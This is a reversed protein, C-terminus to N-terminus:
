DRDGEWHTLKVVGTKPNVIVSYERLGVEKGTIVKELSMIYCEETWEFGYGDQREFNKSYPKNTLSWKGKVEAIEFKSRWAKEIHAQLKDLDSSPCFFYCSAEIGQGRFTPEFHTTKCYGIIPQLYKPADTACINEFVSAFGKKTLFGIQSSGKARSPYGDFAAWRGLRPDDFKFDFKARAAAPLLDKAIYSKSIPLPPNGLMDRESIM